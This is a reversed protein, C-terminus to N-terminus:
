EEPRGGVFLKVRYKHSACFKGILQTGWVTLHGDSRQLTQMFEWFKGPVLSQSNSEVSPIIVRKGGAGGLSFHPHTVPPSCRFRIPWRAAAQPLPAFTAIGPRLWFFSVRPQSPLEQSRCEPM